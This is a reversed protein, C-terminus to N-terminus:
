EDFARNLSGKRHLPRKDCSDLIRLYSRRERLEIRHLKREFIEKDCMYKYARTDRYNWYSEPTPYYVSFDRNWVFSCYPACVRNPLKDPNNRWDHVFADMRYVCGNGESVLIPFEM